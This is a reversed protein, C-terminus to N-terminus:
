DEYKNVIGNENKIKCFPFAFLSKCTIKKRMEGQLVDEQTKLEDKKKKKGDVSPDSGEAAEIKRKGLSIFIWMKKIYM